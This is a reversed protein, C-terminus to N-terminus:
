RVVPLEIWFRSGKGLDSEVGVRGGMREVGRRVLALGIGTGPYRETGHLREFVKFIRDQHERAIGVGNDEIWVRGTSGRDEAHIRVSPVRDAPVFKLANGLLNTLVQELTGPHARVVGLPGAISVRAGRAAVDAQLEQLAREVARDLDVRGLPLEARSM